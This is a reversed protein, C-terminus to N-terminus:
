GAAQGVTRQAGGGLLADRHEGLQFRMVGHMNVHAYAIPAVRRPHDAPFRAPDASVARQLRSTNWATVVNTLLTLANSLAALEDRSRGAKPGIPGAHIARQLTHVAEGRALSRGVERCYDPSTLFDAHYITGLLKGIAAGAEYTREGRSASGYREM